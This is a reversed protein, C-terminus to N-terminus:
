LQQARFVGSMPLRQEDRVVWGSGRLLSRLQEWTRVVVNNRSAQRLHAAAGEADSFSGALILDRPGAERFLELHARIGGDTGYDFLGGESCLGVAAGAPLRGFAPRLGEPAHWDYAGQTLTVDLGALPGGPACWAQLSAAAFAPGIEDPDLVEIRIARAQLLAPADRQLLRVTNLSAACPGGALDLLHLAAGPREELLPRLGQALGEAVQQTRLRLNLGALSACLKRDIPTAWPGLNEPGLKFLYTSTGDLFGGQARLMGRGIVSRRLFFALLPRGIWGRWGQMGEVNRKSEALLDALHEPSADVAFAPHTVDLVPLEIGSAHMVYSVGARKDGATYSNKSMRAGYFAFGMM